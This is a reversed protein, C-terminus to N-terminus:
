EILELAKDVSTVPLKCVKNQCVFITTQGEILKNELLALSGEKKGGLYLVNPMYHAEMGQRIAEYDNGIIAVEYPTNTFYNLLIAWNSYFPGNKIVEEKVNNLMTKSKEVYEKNYLYTGLLFLDKAIISNSGPIVNDTVEMKRAILKEDIDSTYYFMGSESDQFHEITYEMLSNALNLWEEDFTAQYLSVFADIVLAYDDLFANISAKGDKYNRTLRFDKKMANKKIFEANKLAKDLFAKEGFVRYADVYGKLMLANWSTLVKDDLGPRIRKDREKMLIQKGEAITQALEDVTLDNIKAIKEAEQSRYLINNHEWQTAKKVTYYDKFTKAKEGLLADIDTEDWVYFKGEEGESDADLSSYFGGKPSTMEREIYELTEYVVQKYLPKKSLQYAESYLSVLQGNDYLMKEFHPVKWNADTSYRAFGGGLHDYIGGWAMNDLTSYVAELAKENGTEYQYRLLYLWNSPMPFKPAGQRGGKKFDIRSVWQDFLTNQSGEKFEAPVPNFAVKEIDQIGEAVKEANEQISNPDDAKMKIFYELIKLWDAKPYYTGAYFPRGDALALANLPWGGRQNMLHCADMYIQDVDPREERDVKINVFHENMLQAVTTDEFSEHEMVHCWHCAAYGVSIIIMKDENEAKNLAKQGWPHWNVPNHAHQLLYPSSENVLENTYAHNEHKDIQNTKDENNKSQQANCGSLLIWCAGVFIICHCFYKFYM